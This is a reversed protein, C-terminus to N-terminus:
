RPCFLLPLTLQLLLIPLSDLHLFFLLLPLLHLLISLSDLQM